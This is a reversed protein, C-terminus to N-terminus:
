SRHRASIRAAKPAAHGAEEAGVDSPDGGDADRDETAPEGPERGVARGLLGPERALEGELAQREGHRRRRDLADPGHLRRKARDGPPDRRDARRDRERIEVPVAKRVVDTEDVRPRVAHRHRRRRGRARAVLRERKVRRRQGVVRPRRRRHAAERPVEVGVPPEVQEDVVPAPRRHEEQAARPSREARGAKTATLEHRAAPAPVRVRDGRGVDVAVAPEVEHDPVVERIASPQEVRLRLAVRRHLHLVRHGARGVTADVPDQEPPGAAPEHLRASRERPPDGVAPRERDPGGVEVAIEPRLEVERVVEAGVPQEVVLRRRPVDPEPERGATAAEERGGRLHQPVVGELPHSDVEAVQVAVAPQVGEDAVDRALVRELLAVEGPDRAPRRRAEGM